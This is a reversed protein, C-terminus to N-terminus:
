SRGGSLSSCENKRFAAQIETWIRYKRLPNFDCVVAVASYKNAVSQVMQGVSDNSNPQLIHLPVNKEKLESEVDELGGLLFQAHRETMNMEEMLPPIISPDNQTPSLPKSPPPPLPYCVRLPINEQQAIHGAFLLAWNDSARVDRQMWYLVCGQQSNTKPPPKTTEVQTLVRTRHRNMWRPMLQAPASRVPLGIFNGASM